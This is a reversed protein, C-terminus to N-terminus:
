VVSSIVDLSKMETLKSTSTDGVPKSQPHVAASIRLFPLATFQKERLPLLVFPPKSKLLSERENMYRQAVKDPLPVLKKTGPSVTQSTSPISVTNEADTLLNEVCSPATSKRDTDIEWKAVEAIKDNRQM